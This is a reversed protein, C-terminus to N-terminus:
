KIMFCKIKLCSNIYNVYIIKPLHILIYGPLAKIGCPKLGIIFIGICFAILGPNNPLIPFVILPIFQDFINDPASLVKPTTFWVIGKTRCVLGKNELMFDIIFNAM